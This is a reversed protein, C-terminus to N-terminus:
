CFHNNCLHFEDCRQCSGEVVKMDMLSQPSKGNDKFKLHCLSLQHDFNSSSVFKTAILM